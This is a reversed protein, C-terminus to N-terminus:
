QAVLALLSVVGAAAMLGPVRFLRIKNTSTEMAALLAAALVVKFLMWTAAFLGSTFGEPQWPVFLNVLLLIFILQKIASAWFILGVPRGSYELVMGEHVMTLELHTDPNDVPIRGTEAITIMLFSVAALLASFTVPSTGAAAAM